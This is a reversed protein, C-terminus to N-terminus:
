QVFEMLKIWQDSPVSVRDSGTITRFKSIDLEEGGEAKAATAKKIAIDKKSKPKKKKLKKKKGSASSSSETDTSDSDSEKVQRKTKKTKRKKKTKCKKHKDSDSSSTSEESIESEVFSDSDTFYDMEPESEPSSQDSHM